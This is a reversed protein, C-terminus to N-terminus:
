QQQPAHFLQSSQMTTNTKILGLLTPKPKFHRAFAGEHIEHAENYNKILEKILENHIKAKLIYKDTLKACREQITNLQATEYLTKAPTDRPLKYSARIAQRQITELTKRNKISTVIPIFPVYDIIPRIFIKYINLCLRSSAGWKKSSICRLMNIRKFAKSKTTTTHSNFNLKTDLSVGLFRPNNDTQILNNDYYLQLNQKTRSRTFLICTTKNINLKMRWKYLWHKLKNLTNQLHITIAKPNKHGYWFSLDDAFNAPTSSNDNNTPIDNFFIIFLLPGLVSGQPVGAEILRTTSYNNNIKVRFTRNSLYSKIWKGIYPPIKLENLKHLLGAHWVSDFARELDIFVAGLKQNQNFSAQVQQIIRIIHDKTQRCRRFGSQFKSIIKNVTLWNELRKYIIRELLKSLTNLLSIPRYSEVKSHDKNPKPIVIITAHKWNDPIHNTKLSANFLRTIETIYQHPLQKLLKNTITDFGASSKNKLKKIILELETENTLKIDSEEYNFLQEQNNNIHNFHNNDYKSGDYIKFTSELHNAFLNTTIAPDNVLSGNLQIEPTKNSKPQNRNDISRIKSWLKSDSVQHTNLNNCFATWKQKKYDIISLKVLETLKNYKTKTTTDKTKQYQKRAQKRRHILEMIYNPLYINTPTKNVVKTTTAQNLSLQLINTLKNVYTDIESPASLPLQTLESLHNNLTIQFQKWDTKKIMITTNQQNRRRINFTLTIPLHDSRPEELCNFQIFNKTLSQSAIALDLLATYYPNHLPQYTPTNDNLLTLNLEKFLKELASGSKCNHSSNWLTNHANLDGLLLVNTSLNFIHSLLQENIPNNPTNYYAAIYLDASDNM